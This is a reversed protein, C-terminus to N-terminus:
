FRNKYDVFRKNIHQVREKRDFQFRLAINYAMKESSLLDVALLNYSNLQMEFRKFHLGLGLGFNNYSNDIVQYHVQTSLHIGFRRQYALNISNYFVDEHHM